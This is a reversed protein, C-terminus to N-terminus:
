ARMSEPVQRNAKKYATPSMGTSEKFIRNFSTKSSFGCEYALGLFTFRAKSEDVVKRKFADVRYKNIFDYFNSGLHKNLLESLKKDTLGIKTALDGLTLKDDLYPREEEMLALLEKKLLMVQGETFLSEGMATSKLSPSKGSEKLFDPLLIKSQVTGKYGLVAYMIILLIAIMLGPNWVLDALPLILEYVSLGSDIVVIIAVGMLLTRCWNLDQTDMSSIAQKSLSETKMIERNTLLAYFLFFLNELLNIYDSVQAIQQGYSQFWETSILSIGLPLSVLLWHIFYPILNMLYPRIIDEKKERLSRVFFLLTPGLLFGLGHGFIIAIGGVVAAGHIFAYYYLAFFFGASFFLASLRSSFDRKTKLIFFVMLGSLIMGAVLIFNIIMEFYVMAWIDAINKSAVFIFVDRM